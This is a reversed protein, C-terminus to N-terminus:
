PRIQGGMKRGETAHIVADFQTASIEWDDDLDEDERPRQQRNDHGSGAALVPADFQTTSLNSGNDDKDGEVTAQRNEGGAVVCDFQSM